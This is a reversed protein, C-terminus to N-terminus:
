KVIFKQGKKVYIGPQLKGQMKRGQLDYVPLNDQLFLNNFDITTTQNEDLSLVFQSVSSGNPIHLYAKGQAIEGSGQSNLKVKNFVAAGNKKALIFNTGTEDNVIDVPGNASHLLLNEETPAIGSTTPLMYLSANENESLLIVGINAAITTAEEIPKIIAKFEANYTRAIYYATVGTPLKFASASSFTAVKKGDFNNVETFNVLPAPTDFTIKCDANQQAASLTTVWTSFHGNDSTHNGVFASSTGTGNILNLVYVNSENSDSIYWTTLNEALNENGFTIYRFSFNSEGGTGNNFTLLRGNMKKTVDSKSYIQFGNFWNGVVAWVYYPYDEPTISEDYGKLTVYGEADGAIWKGAKSNPMKMTMWQANELDSSIKLPCSENATTTITYTANETVTPALSPTVTVNVYSPITRIAPTVDNKDVTKTDTVLLTGNWYYKYTITYSTTPIDGVATITNANGGDIKGGNTTGGPGWGDIAVQGSGGANLFHSNDFKIVFKNAYDGTGEVLTIAHTPSDSLDGTNNIYKKLGYNFLYMKGNETKFVWYDNDTKNKHGEPHDLNHYNLDVWTAIGGNPHRTTGGKETFSATTATWGTRSNIITYYKTSSIQSVDTIQAWGESCLATIFLMLLLTFKKM